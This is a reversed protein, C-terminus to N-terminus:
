TEEGQLHAASSLAAAETTARFTGEAFFGKTHLARRGDHRGYIGNAAGVLDKYIQDDSYSGDAAIRSEALPHRGAAPGAPDGETGAGAGPPGPAPDSASDPAPNPGAAQELSEAASEAPEAVQQREPQGPKLDSEVAQLRQQGRRQDHRHDAQHDRLLLLRPDGARGPRLDPDSQSQRRRRLHDDPSRGETQPERTQVGLM